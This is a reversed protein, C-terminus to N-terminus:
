GGLASRQGGIVALDGSRWACDVELMGVAELLRLHERVGLGHRLHDVYIFVGGPRLSAHVRAMIARHREAYVEESPHAEWDAIAHLALSSIILAYGGCGLPATTALEVEQEHLVVDPGLRTQAYRLKQGARDILHLQVRPYAEIFREALAGTGAGLDAVRAGEELPPAAYVIEEIAARYRPDGTVHLEYWYPDDAFGHEGHGYLSQRWSEMAARSEESRQQQRLM